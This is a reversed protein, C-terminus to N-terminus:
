QFSIMKDLATLIWARFTMDAAEAASKYKALEEKPLRISIQGLKRQYKRMKANHAIREKETM